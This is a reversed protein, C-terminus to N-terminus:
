EYYTNMFRNVSENEAYNDDILENQMESAHAQSNTAPRVSPGRGHIDNRFPHLNPLFELTMTPLLGSNVQTYSVSKKKGNRWYLWAALAVIALIIIDDKM